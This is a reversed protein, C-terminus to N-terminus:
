PMPVSTLLCTLEEEGPDMGVRSDSLFSTEVSSSDRLYTVRESPLMTLVLRAIQSLLSMRHGAVNEDLIHRGTYYWNRSERASGLSYEYFRARDKGTGRSYGESLNGGSPASRGICNTPSTSLESIECGSRSTTGASTRPSFRWAIRKSAGCQIGPLRRHCASLGNTM